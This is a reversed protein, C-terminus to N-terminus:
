VTAKRALYAAQCALVTDGHFVSEHYKQLYRESFDTKYFEIEMTVPGKIFFPAVTGPREATEKARAYIQRWAAKLPLCKAGFESVSEKVAVGAADPVLKKAEAVGASDGTVMVLPVGLEGAIAAEMGAEGVSLGNLRIDRIDTEYSHNLLCAASGAKAHMGMLILGKFDRELGGAWTNSYPPKGAYVYVHDPLRSLDINRGFCHEDYLFIEDAGGDFLGKILASLDSMFYKQGIIYEPNGPQVQAYSVVGSAGEMDTRIMYKIM